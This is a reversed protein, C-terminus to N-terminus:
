RLRTGPPTAADLMVKLVTTAAAGAADQLRDISHSFAMRRAERYATQFEQEKMWRSLTNVGIGVTRAAAEVSRCTLLAAIAQEMKHGFKAGHGVIQGIGVGIKAEPQQVRM